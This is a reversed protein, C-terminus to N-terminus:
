GDTLAKLYNKVKKKMNDNPEWPSEGTGAQEDTAGTGDRLGKPCKKSNGGIM